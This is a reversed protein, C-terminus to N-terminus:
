VEQDQEQTKLLKLKRLINAVEEFITSIRFRQAKTKPKDKLKVSITDLDPNYRTIEYGVSILAPELDSGKRPPKPLRALMEYIDPEGRDMAREKKVEKMTRIKQKKRKKRKINIEDTLQDVAWRLAKIPDAERDRIPNGNSDFTPILVNLDSSGSYLNSHWIHAAILDGGMGAVDIVAKEYAQMEDADLFTDDPMRVIIWYAGNKPPRGIGKNANKKFGAGCSEIFQDVFSVGRFKLPTLEYDEHHDHGADTLYEFIASLSNPTVGISNAYPM